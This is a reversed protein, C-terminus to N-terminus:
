KAATTKRLCTQWKYRFIKCPNTHRNEEETLSIELRHIIQVEEYGM